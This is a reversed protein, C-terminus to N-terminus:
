SGCKCKSEKVADRKWKLGQAIAGAHSVSINYKESLDKLKFGSKRELRLNYVDINNLRSNYCNEGSIKDFSVLGTNIAHIRNQKASVIELNEVCNNKKNGDKHNIHVGKEREGLFADAVIRHIHFTKSIGLKTLCVTLYRNNKGCLILKKGISTHNGAKDRRINGFSSVSYFGEYGIVSNWIEDM